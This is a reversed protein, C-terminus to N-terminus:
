EGRRPYPPQTAVSAARDALPRVSLIDTAGPPPIAICPYPRNPLGGRKRGPAKRNKQETMGADYTSIVSQTGAKAPVVPSPPAVPSALVIPSTPVIPPPKETGDNWRRINLHRKPNGGERSRRPIHSRRPLNKQETMGAGYTSIVSQTGAKAPVVPSTPVLPLNKQETM